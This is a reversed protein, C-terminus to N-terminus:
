ESFRKPLKVTRGSRTYLSVPVRSKDSDSGIEVNSPENQTCLPDPVRSQDSESGNGANSLRHFERHGVEFPGSSVDFQRLEESGESSDTVEKMVEIELPFIRQVPRLMQGGSTRVRVLRVEADKGPFTEVIQGIPWDMRKDNDNGVLVIEGVKVRRIPAIKSTFLKLQGLYENRFRKRLDDRLQQLHKIKRSLMSRDVEDFDPLGEARTLERVYMSPSLVSLENADNSIYTLPRSNM